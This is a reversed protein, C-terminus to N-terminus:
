EGTHEQYAGWGFLHDEGLSLPVIPKKVGECALADTIRQFLQTRVYRQHVLSFNFSTLLTLAEKYRGEDCLLAVRREVLGEDNLAGVASLAERRMTLTETGLGQLALDREVVIQPHLSLPGSILSLAFAAGRFDKKCRRLLRGLLAKARGDESAELAAVSLSLRQERTRTERGEELGDEMTAAIWAGLQFQWRSREKGPPSKAVAWDLAEGLQEMGSPAWDLSSESPAELAHLAAVDGTLAAAQLAEWRAVTHARAWSFLPLPTKLRELARLYDTMGSESQPNELPKRSPLWIECHTHSEGPGLLSKISQDALPGAQIELLQTTSDALYQTVWRADEGIGDSWLKVGRLSSFHYLGIGRSPTFAGFAVLDTPSSTPRWFYGCMSPIDAQTKPLGEVEGMSAGHRLYSGPPYHFSTDSAAPVGANSWSMWPRPVLTPNFFRVRQSLFADEHGLSWEVTWHMGHRLEREGCCVFARHEDVGTTYLVKELLSPTHSIPFSVEIGGGVFANRPLIRCPRVVSPRALTEIAEGGSLLTLSNVKGGQDPLIEVRLHKNQMLILTEEIITPRSATAIFSVYPYVGQPDQVSPIPGAPTMNHFNVLRNTISIFSM